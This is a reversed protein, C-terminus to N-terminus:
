LGEREDSSNTGTPPPSRSRKAEEELVRAINARLGALPDVKEAHSTAFQLWREFPSDPDMTLQAEDVMGRAEAVYARIDRALSWDAIVDQLEKARKAEEEQRRREEQRRTEAEEAERRHREQALRHSKIAEAVVYLSAVFENLCDEVRRRKGDRWSTQVSLHALGLISLTLDGTPVYEM